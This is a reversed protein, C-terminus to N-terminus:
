IWRPLSTRAALGEMVGQTVHLAEFPNAVCSRNHPGRPPGDRLVKGPHGTRRGPAARGRDWRSGTRKRGSVGVARRLADPSADLNNSAWRVEDKDVLGYLFYGLAMFPNIPVRDEGLVFACIKEPLYLTEASHATFVM